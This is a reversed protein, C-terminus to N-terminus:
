AIGRITLLGFHIPNGEGSSARKEIKSFVREDSRVFPFIRPLAISNDNTENACKKRLECDSSSQIMFRHAVLSCVSVLTMIFSPIMAGLM